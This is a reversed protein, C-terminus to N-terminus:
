SGSSLLEDVRATQEESVAKGYAKELSERFLNPGYLPTSGAQGRLSKLEPKTSQSKEKRM